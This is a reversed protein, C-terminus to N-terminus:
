ARISMGYVPRLARINPRLAPDAQGAAWEPRVTRHASKADGAAEYSIVVAVVADIAAHWEPAGTVVPIGAGTVVAVVPQVRM